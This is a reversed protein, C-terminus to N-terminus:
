AAQQVGGLRLMWDQSPARLRTGRFAGDSDGLATLALLRLCETWIWHSSTYLAPGLRLQLEALAKPSVRAPSAIDVLSRDRFARMPTALTLHAVAPLVPMSAAVLARALHRV